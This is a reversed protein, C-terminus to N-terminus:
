QLTFRAVEVKVHPTLDVPQDDYTVRVHQANGIVLRFPPEGSVARESGAPNLQSLLVSGDRGRIEVWSEREFRLVIRRAGGARPAPEPAAEAPQAVPAASALEVRPPELESRAAPVFTLKESRAREARWELLVSAILALVLASLAAYVLNTRRSSDTIPIVRRMSAIAATNDPAEVRGAIRAVLEEADLRLLRAYARLMGRAFTGAPLREWADHELAEIQRPSFKLQQAVEALSLGLAERARALEAGVRAPETM